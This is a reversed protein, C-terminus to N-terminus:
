AAQEETGKWWDLVVITEAPGTVPSIRAERVYFRQHDDDELFQGRKLADGLIKELTSSFNGTDRRRKDRFRFTIAAEIRDARELGAALALASLELEWEAKERHRVRWHKGLWANLSPPTRPIAITVRGSAYAAM